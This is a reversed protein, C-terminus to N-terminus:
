RDEEFSGTPRASLHRRLADVARRQLAKVSGPSRDLVQAVEEISMQTVLRLLVVDRQEPTLSRLGVALAPDLQEALVVDELAPGPLDDDRSWPTQRVRRARRRAEDVLRRRAITLLVARFGSEGGEFADLGSFAALFADSVIADVDDAGRATVYAAVAPAHRAWLASLAPGEGRRAGDLLDPFASDGLHM